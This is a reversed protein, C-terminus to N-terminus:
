VLKFKSRRTVSKAGNEIIQTTLLYDEAIQTFTNVDWYINGARNSHMIDLDNNHLFVFMKRSKQVTIAFFYLLTNQDLNTLRKMRNTGAYNGSLGNWMFQCHRYEVLYIRYQQNTIIKVPTNQFTIWTCHHMKPAYQLGINDFHRCIDTVNIIMPQWKSLFSKDRMNCLDEVHRNRKHVVYTTM